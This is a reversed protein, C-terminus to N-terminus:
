NAVADRKNIIHLALSRKNFDVGELPIVGYEKVEPYKELFWNKIVPYRRSHCKSILIMERFEALTKELTEKPEHTKIYEEMYEYTLGKYYEQNPAKKITKRTVTYEEYHERAEQLLNYEKSGVISAKKAFTRDMILSRNDHDVKIYNTM